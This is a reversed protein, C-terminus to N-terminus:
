FDPSINRRGAPDEEERPAVGRMDMRKPTGEHRPQGRPKGHHYERRRGGDRRGDSLPNRDDTRPAQHIDLPSLHPPVLEQQDPTAVAAFDARALDQGALAGIYARRSAETMQNDALAKLIVVRQQTVLSVRISDVKAEIM